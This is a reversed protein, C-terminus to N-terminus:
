WNLLSVRQWFKTQQCHSSLCIEHQDRYHFLSFPPNKSTQATIWHAPYFILAVQFSQLTAETSKNARTQKDNSNKVVTRFEVIWNSATNNDYSFFLADSGDSAFCIGFSLSFFPLKSPNKMVKGTTTVSYSQLIVEHRVKEVSFQKSYHEPPQVLHEVRGCKASQWNMKRQPKCFKRDLLVGRWYVLGFLYITSKLVCFTM